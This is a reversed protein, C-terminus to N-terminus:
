GDNRRGFERDIRRGYVKLFAIAIPMAVLAFLSIALLPDVNFM